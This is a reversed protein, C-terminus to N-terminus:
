NKRATLVDKERRRLYNPHETFIKKTLNKREADVLPIPYGSNNSVIGNM